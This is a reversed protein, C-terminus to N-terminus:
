ARLGNMCNPALDNASGDWTEILIENLIAFVPKGDPFEYGKESLREVWETMKIDAYDTGVLERFCDDVLEEWWGKWEVLLKLFVPTLGLKKWNRKVFITFDDEFFIPQKLATAAM